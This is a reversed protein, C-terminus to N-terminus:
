SVAGTKYWNMIRRYSDTIRISIQTSRAQEAPDQAHKDPHHAKLLRKWAAKCEEPSEGSLLGLVRFDEVLEQPVPIRKREPNQRPPPTRERTNGAQRTKGTNPEWAAFPDEDSDLRDRLIDGLRDYISQM